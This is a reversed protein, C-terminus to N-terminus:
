GDFIVLYGRDDIGMNKFNIDTNGRFISHVFSKVFIAASGAPRPPNVLKM